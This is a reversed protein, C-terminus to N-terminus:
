TPIAPPFISKLAGGRRKQPLITTTSWASLLGITDCKNDSLIAVVCDKEPDCREYWGDGVVIAMRVDVVLGLLSPRKGKELNFKIAELFGLASRIQDFTMKERQGLKALSIARQETNLRQEEPLEPDTYRLNNVEELCGPVTPSPPRGAAAPISSSNACGSPPDHGM